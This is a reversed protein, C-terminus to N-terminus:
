DLGVYAAGILSAALLVFGVKLVASKFPARKDNGEIAAVLAM